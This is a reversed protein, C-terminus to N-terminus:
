GHDGERSRSGGRPLVGRSAGAVRQRRPERRRPFGGGTSSGSRAGAAVFAEAFRRRRRTRRRTATDQAAGPSPNRRFRASTSVGDVSSERSLGGSRGWFRLTLTPSM